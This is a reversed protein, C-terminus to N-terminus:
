SEDFLTFAKNLLQGDGEKYDPSAKWIRTIAGATKRDYGDTRKLFATLEQLQSRREILATWLAMDNVEKTDTEASHLKEKITQQDAGYSLLFDLEGEEYEDLITNVHDTCRTSKAFEAVNRTVVWAPPNKIKERVAEAVQVMFSMLGSPVKQENWIRDFDIYKYNNDFFTTMMAITYIVAQSKYGRDEKYWDTRGIEGDLNKFLIAKAVLQKVWYENISAPKSEYMKGIIKSFELFCKQAGKAVHDPRGSTSMFYKAADTKTIVMEPPFREKISKRATDSKYRSLSKYQGRAREYFWKPVVIRDLKPTNLNSVLRDIESQFKANSILDAESVANQTNSYRSINPVIDQMLADDKLVNLKMQVKIGDLSSNNQERAYLLSSSTQGGNVIQLDTVSVLKLSGGEDHLEANRATATIGNNYAFFLHPEDKITKLIGKNTKTRAELYTRVNSELLRSDYSDMLDAIVAGDIALLYSTLQENDSTKICPVGRLTYPYDTFDIRIPDSGTAVYESYDAWDLVTSKAPLKLLREEKSVKRRTEYTKNTLIIIKFGAVKSEALCEFLTAGFHASSNDANPDNYYDPTAVETVARKVQAVMEDMDTARVTAPAAATQDFFCGALYVNIVYKGQEAEVSEFQFGDLRFPRGSSDNGLVQCPDLEPCDGRESVVESFHNFFIDSPSDGSIASETRVDSLFDNFERAVVKDATLQSDAETKFDDNQDHDTM